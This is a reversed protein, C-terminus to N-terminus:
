PGAVKHFATDMGPPSPLPIQQADLEVLRDGDLRFISAENSAVLTYITASPDATGKSTTWSGTMVSTLTGGPADRYTRRLVSPSESPARYLVLREVLGSCDGCPETREYAAVQEMQSVAPPHAEEPGLPDGAVVFQIAVTKEPKTVRSSATGYVLTLEGEGEGIARWAFSSTGQDSMRGGFVRQAAGLEMLQPPAHGRVGWQRGAAPEAALDIRMVDGPHLSVQVRTGDAATLRVTVARASMTLSVCLLALLPRFHM